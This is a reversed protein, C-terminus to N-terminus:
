PKQELINPEEHLETFEHEYNESGDSSASAADVSESPPWRAHLSNVEVYRIELTRTWPKYGAREM